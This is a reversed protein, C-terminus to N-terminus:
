AIKLGDWIVERIPLPESEPQTRNQYDRHTIGLLVVDHPRGDLVVQDRLLAERRFGCREFARSSAQNRRYCGASLKNLRLTEFSFATLM